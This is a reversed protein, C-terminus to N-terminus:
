IIRIIWVLLFVSASLSLSWKVDINKDLALQKLLRFAKAPLLGALLAGLVLFGLPHYQVSKSVELHLLSSVSRTLGCTPCPLGFIQNFPCVSIGLGDSPLFALIVLLLAVIWRFQM